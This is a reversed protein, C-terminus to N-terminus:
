RSKITFNANPNERSSADAKTSNDALKTTTSEQWKRWRRQIYPILKGYFNTFCSEVEKLVINVKNNVSSVFYISLISEKLIKLDIYKYWILRYSQSQSIICLSYARSTYVYKLYVCIWHWSGYSSLWKGVKLKRTAYANILVNWIWTTPSFTIM